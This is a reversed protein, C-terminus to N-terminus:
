ATSAGALPTLGDAAPPGALTAGKSILYEVAPLGGAESAAIFVPTRGQKTRVNVDAGKEVLLKIRNLNGGCWILATADFANKAQVDAGADLLRKMMAESGVAAAYMLPTNGRNDKVNPGGAKLLQDVAATDDRRIANYFDDSVDAALPLCVVLTSLFIRPLRM